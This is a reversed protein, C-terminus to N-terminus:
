YAKRLMDAFKTPLDSHEIAQAAKEVDYRVRVFDVKISDKEFANSCKNITIITYCALPKGDKPKGVSGANIAHFYKNNTRDNHIIRHYPKHSHGCILIDAGTNIFIDTYDKEPKDQLLYETNSYPSGHLMLIVLNKGNLQFELRIQAPLASLYKILDKGIMFYAFDAPDDSIRENRIEVAKEDHNGAITPIHRKRIENIIANPWVNYGVLDGLCYIADIDQQEIHKMVEEFAPLNAHIDSIIAIRM